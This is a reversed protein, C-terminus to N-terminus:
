SEFIIALVTFLVTVSPGVGCLVSSCVSIYMYCIYNVSPICFLLAVCVCVCVCM